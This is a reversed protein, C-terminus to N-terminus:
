VATTRKAALACLERLRGALKACSRIPLAFARM